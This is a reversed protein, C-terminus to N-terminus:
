VIGNEVSDILDEIDASDDELVYQLMAAIEFHVDVGIIALRRESEGEERGNTPSLSATNSLRRRDDDRLDSVSTITVDKLRVDAISAVALRFPLQYEDTSFTDKTIDGEISTTVEFTVIDPEEPSPM